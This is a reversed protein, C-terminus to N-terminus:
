LGLVGHPLPVALLREFVLDLILSLTVSYAIIRLWSTDSLVRMLLMCFIAGAVIQGLWPLAFFYGFLLAVLALVRKLDTGVPFRISPISNMRWGEWLAAFSAIILIIGVFVPFVGAGPRDMRGFPLRVALALYAGALIIGVIGSVLYVTRKQFTM